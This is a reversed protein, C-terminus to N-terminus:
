SRGAKTPRGRPRAHLHRNLKESWADLTSRSGLALGKQVSQHLVALESEALGAALLQAYAYQREFPTNGLGWYLPHSQLWSEEILGLHHRVSSWEYHQPESVIGARVPNLEIYRMCALYYREEEIPMAKFRGEWLAGSRQNVANFRVVYRRGIMQMALSLGKSDSPTVLLHYHNSMMVYAHIQVNAELMADMMMSKWAIRDADNLFVDQRNNGRQFVHHPLGPIVLRPQRAM